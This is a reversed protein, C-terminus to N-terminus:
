GPSVGLERAEEPSVKLVPLDARESEERLANTIRRVTAELEGLSEKDAGPEFNIAFSPTSALGETHGAHVGLAVRRSLTADERDSRWRRQDLERVQGAIDTLFREDAYESFREGQELVFTLAFDWMRDQRGAALAAIEQDFFAREEITDTKLSRYELKVEGSRVWNDILSPLHSEVFMRVTPCELDGYIRLTIPANPSGLTADDQPVDALLAAVEQQVQEQDVGGGDGFGVLAVVAFIAAIVLVPLLMWLRRPFAWRRAHNSDSAVRAQQRKAKRRANYGRSRSTEM